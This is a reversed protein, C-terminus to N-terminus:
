GVIEDQITEDQITENPFTEDQITENPFTENPVITKIPVIKNRKICRFNFNECIYCCIMILCMPIVFGCFVFLIAIWINPDRLILSYTTTIYDDDNYKNTPIYCMGNFWLLCFSNLNIKSKSFTFGTCKINNFCALYCDYLSINQNQTYIEYNEYNDYINWDCYQNDYICVRKNSISM